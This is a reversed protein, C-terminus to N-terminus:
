MCDSATFYYSHKYDLFDYYSQKAKEFAAYERSGTLNSLSLIPFCDLLEGDEGTVRGTEDCTLYGDEEDDWIWRFIEATFYTVSGIGGNKQPNLAVPHESLYARAVELAEAESAYEGLDDSADGVREMEVRDGAMYRLEERGYVFFRIKNEM